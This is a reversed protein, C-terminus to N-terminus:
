SISWLAALSFVVELSNKESRLSCERRIEVADNDEAIVASILFKLYFQQVWRYQMDNFVFIFFNFQFNFIESFVTNLWSNQIFQVVRVAALGLILPIQNFTLRANTSLRFDNECDFVLKEPDFDWEGFKRGAEAAKLLVLWGVTLLLNFKIFQNRRFFEFVEFEAAEFLDRQNQLISNKGNKGIQGM